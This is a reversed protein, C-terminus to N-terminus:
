VWNKLERSSYHPNIKDFGLVILNDHYERLSNDRLDTKDVITFRIGEAIQWSGDDLQTTGLSL